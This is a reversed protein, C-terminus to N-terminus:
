HFRHMITGANRLSAKLKTRDIEEKVFIGRKPAAELYGEGLLRDYAAIVTNRSVRLDRSLERSSPLFDGAVVIGDQICRRIELSLQQQLNASQRRDLNIPLLKHRNLEPVRLKKMEPVKSSGSLFYIKTSLMAVDFRVREKFPLLCRSHIKM